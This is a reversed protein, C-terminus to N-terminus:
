CKAIITGARGDITSEDISEFKWSFFFYLYTEIKNISDISKGLSSPVVPCPMLEAETVFTKSSNSDYNNVISISKTNNNVNDVIYKLNIRSSAESQNLPSSQNIHHDNNGSKISNTINLLLVPTSNNTGIKFNTVSNLPTILLSQQSTILSLNHNVYATPITFPGSKFQIVFFIFFFVAAFLRIVRLNFRSRCVHHRNNWISTFINSIHVNNEDDTEGIDSLNVVRYDARQARGPCKKGGTLM